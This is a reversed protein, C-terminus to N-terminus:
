ACSGRPVGRGGGGGGNPPGRTRHRREPLIEFKRAHEAKLHDLAAVASAPHRDIDLCRAMEIRLADRMAANGIREGVRRHAARECTLKVLIKPTRGQLDLEVIMDPNALAPQDTIRGHEVPALTDGIDVRTQELM